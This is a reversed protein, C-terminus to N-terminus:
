EWYEEWRDQFADKLRQMYAHTKIKAMWLREGAGGKCVVGEAVGFKGERVDDAFAGTLRGRHVIRPIRLRGFDRVFTEPDVIGDDTKVDFLVLSKADGSKHRGAFSNPGVFETFAVVTASKPCSRRLVDALPGALDRRFIGPAEELGAHAAAFEAIGTDTFQFSDRRTGFSVFGFEFDWMWHLNTGDVKEFAICRGGPADRSGAIKPYILDIKAM